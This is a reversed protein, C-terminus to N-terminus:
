VTTEVVPWTLRITRVTLASGQLDGGDSRVPRAAGTSDPPCRRRPKVGRVPDEPKWSHNPCTRLGNRPQGISERPPHVSKMPWTYKQPEIALEFIRGHNPDRLHPEIAPNPTSARTVRQCSVQQPFHDDMKPNLSTCHLFIDGIRISTFVPHSVWVISILGSLRSLPPLSRERYSPSTIRTKWDDVEWDLLLKLDGQPPCLILTGSDLHEKHSECLAILNDPNDLDLGHSVLQASRLWEVQSLGKLRASIIRHPSSVGEQESGCLPCMGNDRVMASKEQRSMPFGNITSDPLLSHISSPASHRCPSTELYTLVYPMTNALKRALPGRSTVLEARLPTILCRQVEHIEYCTRPWTAFARLESLRGSLRGPPPLHFSPRSLLRQWPDAPRSEARRSRRSSEKYM